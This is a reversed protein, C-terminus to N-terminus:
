ARRSPGSARGLGQTSWPSEFAYPPLRLIRERLAAVLSPPPERGDLRRDRYHEYAEEGVALGDGVRADLSRAAAAVTTSLRARGGEEVSELFLAARAASLLRGLTQVSPVTTRRQAKMWHSVAPLRGDYRAGLWARHEEVARRASDRASWGPVNPFRAARRGDLLAFTVPDTAECQVARLVAPGPLVILGGVRLVAYPGYDGAAAAAAAVSAPSGPDLPVRAFADDPYLPWARARWDALPLLPPATEGPVLRLREGASAALALDNTGGSDLSVATTGEAEIDAMLWASLRVSLRVLAALAEGLPAEARGTLTRRSELARRVAQAEEPVVVLARVLAQERSRSREGHVLSLWIRLPDAVLKVCLYPVTPAAPRVCGWFAARWVFQLELWAAVRREQTGRPPVVPRREPGAVLRWGATPGDLGPRLRLGAEDAPPPSTLHVPRDATLTSSACAARLEAEEYVALEVLEALLPVRRCLRAWRRSVRARRSGPCTGDDAVVVAVDLDSYGYLADGSGLSGRTYVAAGADGARFYLVLARLAGDYTRAAVRVHGARQSWLVLRRLALAAKRLM